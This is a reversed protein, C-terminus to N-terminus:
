QINNQRRFLSPTQSFLSNTTIRVYDLAMDIAKSEATFISSGDPLLIKEHNSGLVYM